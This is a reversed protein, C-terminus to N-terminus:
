PDVTNLIFDYGKGTAGLTAAESNRVPCRKGGDDTGDYGVSYLLYKADGDKRYRLPHAPDFPDKPVSPLIAPVLEDLKEPYRAHQSRLVELALMVRLGDRDANFRHIAWPKVSPILEKIVAYKAGGERSEVESFIKDVQKSAQAKPTEDDGLVKAWEEFYKNWTKTEDARSGIIPALDDAAKKSSAAEVQDYYEDIVQLGMAREGELALAYPPLPQRDIAALLDQSVGASLKGAILDAKAQLFALTQEQTSRHWAIVNCYGNVGRGIALAGEFTKLYESWESKESLMSMRATCCSVLDGSLWVGPMPGVADGRVTPPAVFRSTTRLDELRAFFKMNELHQIFDRGAPELKRERDDAPGSRIANFADRLARVDDAENGTLLNPHEAVYFREMGEFTGLLWQLNTWGNESRSGPKALQYSEAIQVRAIAHPSVAPPLEKDKAADQALATGVGIGIVALAALLRTRM